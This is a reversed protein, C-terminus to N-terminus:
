KHYKSRPSLKEVWDFCIVPIAKNNELLFFSECKKSKRNKRNIKLVHFKARLADSTALTEVWASCSFPVLM